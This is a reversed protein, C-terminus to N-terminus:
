EVPPKWYHNVQTTDSQWHRLLPHIACMCMYTYTCVYMCIYTYVLANTHVYKYVFTYVYTCAAYILINGPHEQERHNACLLMTLPQVWMHLLQQCVGRDYCPTAQTCTSHLTYGTHMYLALHLRHAHLTCPTAQTCTLHLTDATGQGARGALGEEGANLLQLLQTPLFVLEELGGFEDELQPLVVDAVQLLSM